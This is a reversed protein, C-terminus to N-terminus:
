SGGWHLAHCSFPFAASDFATLRTAGTGDANMLWVQASDPAGLLFAIQHGDPSPRPLFANEDTVPGIASAAALPAAPLATNVRFIRSQQQGSVDVFASFTVYASDALWALDNIQGTAVTNTAATGGLQMVRLVSAGAVGTGGLVYGLKSGDPSWQLATVDGPEHTLRYQARLQVDYARIDSGGAASESFVIRDLDNSVSAISVGDAIAVVSGDPLLRSLRSGDLYAYGAGPGLYAAWDAKFPVDVPASEFAYDTWTRDPHRVLLNTGDPSWSFADVPTEELDRPFGAEDVMWVGTGAAQGTESVVFTIWRSLPRVQGTTFHLKLPPIHNGDADLADGSVSVEYDTHPDLLSKPAVLLQRSDNPDGQVAFPVSPSITIAGRFTDPDVDRSFGFTLYTAPDVGSDDQGPTSSRLAPPGETQFIWSHSFDNVNGQTDRYGAELRVQYRTSTDLTDHLFILTNGPGWTIQGDVKPVLHFRAAVSAQDLPRDFHIKVPANTPVEIAGKAPSIELIQPPSQCALLALPAALALLLLGAPTRRGGRRPQPLGNM